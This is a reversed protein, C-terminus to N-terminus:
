GARKIAELFPSPRMMLADLRRATPTGYSAWIARTFVEYQHEKYAWALFLAACWFLEARTLALPIRYRLPWKM